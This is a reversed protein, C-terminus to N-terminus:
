YGSPRALQDVYAGRRPNINYVQFDYHMIFGMAAAPGGDTGVAQYWDKGGAFTMMGMPTLNVRGWAAFDIFDVRTQDAHQVPLIPIGHMNGEDISKYSTVNMDVSGGSEHKSRDIIQVTQALLNWGQKQEYAMHARLKAPAKKGLSKRMLNIALEPQAPVLAASNGNVRPTRLQVSYNARNFNLWTGTTANSQHYKIGFLGVPNPGNGASNNVCLVDTAVAGAPVADVTVTQAIVPDQQLVTATGKFNTLTTDYWAVTLGEPLLMAGNPTVMTLTTGSISNITGLVANGPGGNLEMDLKMRFLKKADKVLQNTANIVSQEPQATAWQALFTLEYADKRFIPGVTAQDYQPGTGRGLNGGDANYGGYNGGRLTELPIRFLRTSVKEQPTVEILKLTDDESEFLAEVVKRVRELQTSAVDVNAQAAM